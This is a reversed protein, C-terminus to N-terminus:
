AEGCCMNTSFQMLKKDNTKKEIKAPVCVSVRLTFAIDVEGTV